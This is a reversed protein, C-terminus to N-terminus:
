IVAKIEDPRSVDCSEFVCKGPGSETLQRALSAGADADVDCIIVRAGADVFVKATGEGIGNAGGTILTVRDTYTLGSRAIKSIRPVDDLKGTLCDVIPKVGRESIDPM